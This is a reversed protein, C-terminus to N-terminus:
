FGGVLFVGMYFAADLVGHLQQLIRVVFDEGDSNSSHRSLSGAGWSENLTYSTAREFLLGRKRATM